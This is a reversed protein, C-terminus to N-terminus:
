EEPRTEESSEQDPWKLSSAGGESAADWELRISRKRLLRGLAEREQAGITWRQAALRTLAPLCPLARLLWPLWSSCPASSCPRLSLDLEELLALGGAALLASWGRHGVSGNSSVDLLRLRSLAGRRCAAAACVVRLSIHRLARVSM